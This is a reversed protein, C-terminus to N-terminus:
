RRQRWHRRRLFYRVLLASGLVLAFWGVLTSGALLNQLAPSITFHPALLVALGILIIVIGKLLLDQDSKRQRPENNRLPPMPRM